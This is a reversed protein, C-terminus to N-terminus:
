HHSVPELLPGLIDRLSNLDRSGRTGTNTLPLRPAVGLTKRAKKSAINRTLHRSQSATPPRKLSVLDGDWVSEWGIIEHMAKFANQLEARFHKLQKTPSATKEHLFAISVPYPKAHTSYYSHLWQALPKGKLAKRENWEISSWTSPDFLSRIEKAFSVKFTRSEAERVFSAILSGDFTYTRGAATWTIQLNGNRLRKLSETLDEYSGRDVGRGMSTLFNYGTFVCETDLVNLRAHHLAEFFVDADYQNLQTGAYTIEIGDQAAITVGVREKEPTSQSGLITRKKSQIGAFLASRLLMNPGGRVLEPWIPLQDPTNPYSNTESWRSAKQISKM